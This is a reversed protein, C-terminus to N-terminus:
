RLLCRKAAEAIAPLWSAYQASSPHLGDDALMGPRDACQRSIATVDAYRAGAIATEGRALANFADIEAAIRAADRKQERAFRTVGWDPISVVFVRSAEDGALAIARQLLDAFERRYEDADRGRYQNNVGISLSVLAYPPAFPTAEMAAVLEDTTWGTVALIEPDVLGIGGARLARALQWPWSADAAIGEGLTYSDGLALFRLDM